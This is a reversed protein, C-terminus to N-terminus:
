GQAEAKLLQEMVRHFLDSVYVIGVVQQGDLVPLRRIHRNNMIELVLFLHAEASVTIVRTSMIDGVLVTRSRRCASEVLGALDIDRMGGWIHIHKPQVTLLIDYMSLIGELRGQEDLVMMGFVTRGADQSAQRFIKVADYISDKASLTKFSTSMIDRATIMHRGEFGVLIQFRYRRAVKWGFRRGPPWEEPDSLLM